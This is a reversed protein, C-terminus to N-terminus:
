SGATGSFGYKSQLLTSGAGILTSAANINATHSAIGGATAQAVGAQRDITARTRLDAAQVKFGWAERAANNRITLADLEGLYAADGQVDVASGFGVDVNSAAFGVRQAGIAGKVRTRFQDEAIKGRAVADTSQLEAINANFDALDAESNSVKQQDLGAQQQANGAKVKGIASTAAGVGALVLALATLAAM